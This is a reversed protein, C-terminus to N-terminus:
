SRNCKWSVDQQWLYRRCRQLHPHPARESTCTNGCWITKTMKICKKASRKAILLFSFLFHPPCSSCSLLGDAQLFFFFFCFWFLGGAANVLHCVSQRSAHSMLALQWTHPHWWSLFSACLQKHQFFFIPWVSMVAAVGLWYKCQAGQICHLLVIFARVCGWASYNYTSYFVTCACLCNLPLVGM